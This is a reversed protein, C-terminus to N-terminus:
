SAARELSFDSNSEGHRCKRSELASTPADEVAAPLREPLRENGVTMCDDLFDADGLGSELLHVYTRLTFGPDHHGLWEQVQKANKGAEFLLSACTHRFTHFAVWGLGARRAAPKLVRAYVNHPRLATGASSAYIPDEDPRYDGAARVEWLHRAMGTSLPLDRVGYRSKPRKREGRYVQWRVRLRRRGFDVDQWTLAVVESIRLGTHTLFEFFLQWEKPLESFFKVLEPRTLARSRTAEEAATPGLRVGRAPNFRLRGDEVATAFLAGLPALRKRITARPIGQKEQELVFAKVDPPEIESLKYGRFFPVVHHELSHRYDARSHKSIGSRTRGRYTGIWELAYQEFLERAPPKRDGADRRGKAERAEALTRFSEKHQKGRHKWVVVFRSGRKYVGPYRTREMRAPKRHDM